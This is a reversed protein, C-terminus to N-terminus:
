SRNVDVVVRSCVDKLQALLSVCEDLDQAEALAELDAALDTLAPYGYGGGSGKLQHAAVRLIEFDASRVAREMTDLRDSLGDVFQVVIEAFSPDEEVLLSGISVKTEAVPEEM